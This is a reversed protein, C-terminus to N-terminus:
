WVISSFCKLPLNLCWATEQWIKNGTQVCHGELDSRLLCSYGKWVRLLLRLNPKHNHDLLLSLPSIWAPNCADSALIVLRADCVRQCTQSSGHPRVQSPETVSVPRSNNYQGLGPVKQDCNMHVTDSLCNWYCLVVDIYIFPRYTYYSMNRGVFLEEEPEYVNLM